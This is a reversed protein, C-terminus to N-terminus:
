KRGGIQQLAGADLLQAHRLQIHQLPKVLRRQRGDGGAAQVQHTNRKGRRGPRANRSVPQPLAQQVPNHPM